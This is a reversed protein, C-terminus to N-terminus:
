KKEAPKAAASKAAGPQKPMPVTPMMVHAYKTGKWMVWPGGSNPDTPLSDLQAPDPVIVMVHPGSVVWQNDPAAKTAYPDTNSAGKDGQLMYALGVGKVQPDKKNIWGDAWAQWEKDLCMPTGNAEVLCMWGNTGKRLEQMKGDATMAMITANKSITAPAASMARAIKAADARGGAGKPMAEHAPKAKADDKAKEQASVTWSVLILLGTAAVMAKRMTAEAGGNRRRRFFRRVAM